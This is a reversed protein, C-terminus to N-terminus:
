DVFEIKLQKTRTQIPEYVHFSSQQRYNCISLLLSIKRVWFYAISNLFCQYHHLTLIFNISVKVKSVIELQPPLIQFLHLILRDFPICHIFTIELGHIYLYFSLKTHGHEYKMSKSNHTHTPPPPLSTTINLM